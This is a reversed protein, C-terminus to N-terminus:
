ATKVAASYKSVTLTANKGIFPEAGAQVHTLYQTSAINNDAPLADFFKKLDATFSTAQKKAVWSYVKTQSYTNNNWGQYLNFETGDVTLSTLPQGTTTLPWAGGPNALWVMLENETKGGVSSSTFLDYAVNSILGPNYTYTYQMTTPISKVSSLPAPTFTLAANAFSKVQWTDGAWNFSTHWALTSGSISDVETCQGGTKDNDMGWLNNYVTYDGAKKSDYQGCFEQASATTALAAATAAILLKM